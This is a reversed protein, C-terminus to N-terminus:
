EHAIPAGFLAMIGDGTFQNITGEFRHIADCLIAFFRDIIQHWEEPDLGEALAMSEKVDAFLVTVHKREGEVASRSTLIKEVLHNPTYRHPELARASKTTLPENSQAGCNGCFRAGPDAMTGCYACTFRLAKGCRVCFRRDAPNDTGCSLCRMITVDFQARSTAASPIVRM